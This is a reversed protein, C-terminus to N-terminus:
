CPPCNHRKRRSKRLSLAIAGGAIVLLLYSAPEPVPPPESPPPPPQSPPPPSPPTGPPPITPLSPPPPPPPTEPPTAPPTPPTSPPKPEVPSPPPTPPQPPTPGHDRIGPLWPVLPLFAAPWLPLGAAAAPVAPFPLTVGPPAVGISGLGPPLAAVPPLLPPLGALPGAATPLIAVEAPVAHAVPSLLASTDILAPPLRVEGGPAVEVRPEEVASEPVEVVAPTPEEAPPPRQAAAAPVEEVMVNGCRARVLAEGSPEHVFVTEGAKVTVPRDTWFLKNGERLQTHKELPKTVVTPVLHEILDSDRLRKAQRNLSERVVADKNAHARLEAVSYAGGPIVSLPYVNRVVQKVVTLAAGFLSLLYSDTRFDTVIDIQPREVLLAWAPAPPLVTGLLVLAAVGRGVRLAPKINMDIHSLDLFIEKPGQRWRRNHGMKLTFHLRSEGEVNL